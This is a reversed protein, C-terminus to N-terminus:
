KEGKADEKKFFKHTGDRYAREEDSMEYGLKELYKYILDLIQNERHECQWNHYTESVSDGFNSYAAMLLVQEPSSQIFDSLMDMDFEDNENTDLGTLDLFAEGDFQFRYGTLLMSQVAMEAIVSSYQKLGTAEQIFDFRLQYARQAIEDLQEEKERLQQQEQM